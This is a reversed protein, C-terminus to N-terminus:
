TRADLPDLVGVAVALESLAPAGHLIIRSAILNVISPPLQGKLHDVYVTADFLLPVDPPTKPLEYPLTTKDRYSLSRSWRAPDHRAIISKIDSSLSLTRPCDDPRPWSGPDSITPRQLSRLRLTSWIPIM